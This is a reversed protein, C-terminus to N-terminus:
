KQQDMIFDPTGLIGAFGSGSIHGGTLAGGDLGRLWLLRSEVAGTTPPENTVAITAKLIKVGPGFSAPLDNPDVREATLPNALDRFHVLLALQSLSIEVIDRRKTVDDIFRTTMTDAAWGGNGWGLIKDGGFPKLVQHQPDPPSDRREEDGRLLAFLVGRPGLDVMVAEGLSPIYQPAGHDIRWRTQIVSSGTYVVGDAQVELTLRYNIDREDSGFASTVLILCLFLM